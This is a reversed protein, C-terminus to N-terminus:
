RSKKQRPRSTKPYTQSLNQYRNPKQSNNDVNEPLRDIRGNSNFISFLDRNALNKRQYCDRRLNDSDHLASGDRPVSGDYFERSFRRLWERDDPGLDEYYDYDVMWRVNRPVAGLRWRAAAERRTQAKKRVKACKKSSM